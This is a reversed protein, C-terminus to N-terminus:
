IEYFQKSNTNNTNTNTNTNTNDNDDDDNCAVAINMGDIIDYMWTSCYLVKFASVLASLRRSASSKTPSLSLHNNKLFSKFPSQQSQLCCIIVLLHYWHTCHLYLMLSLWTIWLFCTFFHPVHQHHYSFSLVSIYPSMVESKSTLNLSIRQGLNPFNNFLHQQQPWCHISSTDKKSVFSISYMCFHFSESFSNM